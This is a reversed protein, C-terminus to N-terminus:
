KNLVEVIERIKDEIESATPREPLPKIKTKKFISLLKKM